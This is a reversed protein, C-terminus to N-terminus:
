NLRASRDSRRQQLNQLKILKMEFISEDDLLKQRSIMAQGMKRQQVMWSEESLFDSHKRALFQTVLKNAISIDFIDFGLERAFSTKALHSVGDFAVADAFRGKKLLDILGLMGDLFDIMLALSFEFKNSNHKNLRRLIHITGILVGKNVVTGDSLRRTKDNMEFQITGHNGILLTKEDRFHARLERHESKQM